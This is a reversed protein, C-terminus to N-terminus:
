GCVLASSHRPSGHSPELFSSGPEGSGREAVRRGCTTASRHAPYYSTTEGTSLSRPPLNAGPRRGDSHGGSAVGGPPVEVSASRGGNCGTGHRDEGSRADRVGITHFLDYARAFPAGISCATELSPAHAASPAQRVGLRRSQLPLSRSPTGDRGNGAPGALAPPPHVAHAVCRPRRRRHTRHAGHRKSRRPRTDCRRTGELPRIPERVDHPVPVRM